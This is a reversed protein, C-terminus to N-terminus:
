ESQRDVDAVDEVLEAVLSWAVDRDLRVGIWGKKGVYPPVFSNELAPAPLGAPTCGAADPLGPGVDSERGLGRRYVFVNQIKDRSPPAVGGAM